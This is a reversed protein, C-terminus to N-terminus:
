DAVNSHGSAKNPSSQKSFNRSIRVYRESPIAIAHCDEAALHEVVKSVDAASAVHVEFFLIAEFALTRRIWAVAEEARMPHEM